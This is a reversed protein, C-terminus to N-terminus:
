RAKPRGARIGATLSTANAMAASASVSSVPQRGAPFAGRAADVEVDVDVDVDVDVVVDVDVPVAVPCAAPVAAIIAAGGARFSRGTGM